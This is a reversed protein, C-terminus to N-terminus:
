DSLFRDVVEAHRRPTMMLERVTGDAPRRLLEAPSGVQLLRGEHM